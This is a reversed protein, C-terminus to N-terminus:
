NQQMLLRARHQLEALASVGNGESSKQCSLEATLSILYRIFVMMDSEKQHKGYMAEFERSKAAANQLVNEPLGSIIQLLIRLTSYNQDTCESIDSFCCKASGFNLNM